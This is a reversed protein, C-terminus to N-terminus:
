RKICELYGVNMFNLSGQKMCVEGVKLLGLFVFGLLWIILLLTGPKM